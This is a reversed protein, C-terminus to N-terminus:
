EVEEVDVNAGICVLDEFILDQLMSRNITEDGDYVVVKFTQSSM